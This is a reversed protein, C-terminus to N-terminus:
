PSFGIVAAVPRHDSGQGIGTWCASCTLGPGLYVHDIRLGPVYRWAGNVPWTAGRGWGALSQASRYGRAALHRAFRSRWTFNFDGLLVTPTPTDLAGELLETLQDAQARYHAASKPPVLHLNFFTVPRGNLRVTVQVCPIHMGAPYLHVAGPEVFALKSFVAMGYFDRRPIELRHPYSEGLAATFRARWRDNYEQVFLVDPDEEAIERVLEDGCPNDGYLNVTLVSLSSGEVLPAERPVLQGVAPGVAYVVAPLSAMCLRWSRGVALVGALLATVVGGHFTFTDVYFAFLGAAGLRSEIGVNYRWLYAFILVAYFLSVLIAIVAVGRRWSSRRLGRGSRESGGACPCTAAADGTSDPNRRDADSFM